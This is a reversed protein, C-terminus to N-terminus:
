PERTQGTERGAVKDGVVAGAKKTSARDAAM